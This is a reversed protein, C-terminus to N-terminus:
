RIVNNMQQLATLVTFVERFEDRTLRESNLIEKAYRVAMRMHYRQRNFENRWDGANAMDRSAYGTYELHRQLGAFRKVRVAEDREKGSIFRNYAAKDAYPDQVSSLYKLIEARKYKDKEADYLPSNESM